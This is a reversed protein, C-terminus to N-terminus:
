RVDDGKGEETSEPGRNGQTVHSRCSDTHGCGPAHFGKEQTSGETLCAHRNKYRNSNHDETDCVHNCNHNQM